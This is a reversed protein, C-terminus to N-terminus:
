APHLNRSLGDNGRFRSDVEIVFTWPNGSEYGPEDIVLLDMEPRGHGSWASHAIICPKGLM